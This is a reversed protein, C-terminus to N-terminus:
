RTVGQKEALARLAILGRRQLQKVAGQSVSLVEAVQELSLDGLVRLMIVDRQSEPLLALLAAARATGLGVDAMDEASPSRREDHEPDYPLTVPRRSRSRLSDVLRAHAVSFLLSRLGAYGGTVSALKPLVALFVESTSDDPDSAGRARLYGAVKPALDDYLSRLAWSEGAQAACLVADPQSIEAPEVM